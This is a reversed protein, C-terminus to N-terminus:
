AVEEQNCFKDWLEQSEGEIEIHDEDFLGGGVGSCNWQFDLTVDDPLNELLWDHYESGSDGCNDELVVLTRM